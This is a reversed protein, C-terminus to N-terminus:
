NKQLSFFYIGKESDTDSAVYDDADDEVLEGPFVPFNKYKDFFYKYDKALPKPSYKGATFDLM